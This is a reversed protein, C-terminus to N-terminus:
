ALKDFEQGVMYMSQEFNDDESNPVDFIVYLPKRSDINYDGMYFDKLQTRINDSNKAMQSWYGVVADRKLCANNTPMNQNINTEYVGTFSISM